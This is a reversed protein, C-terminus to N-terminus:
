RDNFSDDSNSGGYDDDDDDDDDDDNQGTSETAATVAAAKKAERRANEEEMLKRYDVQHTGRYSLKRNFDSEYRRIFDHGRVKKRTRRSRKLVPTNTTNDEIAEVVDTINIELIALAIKWGQKDQKSHM